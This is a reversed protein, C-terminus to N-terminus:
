KQSAQKYEEITRLNQVFQILAEYALSMSVHPFKSHVAQLLGIIEGDANVVASGSSGPAAPITYVNVPIKIFVGPIPQQTYVGAGSYHGSLLPLVSGLRATNMPDGASWAPDAWVPASKSLKLHPLDISQNIFMFCIDWDNNCIAAMPSIDTGDSLEFNVNIVAKGSRFDKMPILSSFYIPSTAHAVTLVGRIGSPTEILSGSSSASFIPAKVCEKTKKDCVDAIVTTTIKVFSGFITKRDAPVSINDFKQHHRTTACSTIVLSPM